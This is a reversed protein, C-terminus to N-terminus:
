CTKCGADTESTLHMASCFAIVCIFNPKTGQLIRDELLRYQTGSVRNYGPNCEKCGTEADTGAYATKCNPPPATQTLVASILLTCVIVLQLNKM